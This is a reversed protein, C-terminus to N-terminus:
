VECLELEEVVEEQEVIEDEALKANIADVWAKTLGAWDRNYGCDSDCRPIEISFGHKAPLDGEWSTLGLTYTGLCYGSGAILGALSNPGCKQGLDAESGYLQGLVCDTCSSLHLKKVDIQKYWGPKKEDLLAVGRAVNEKFDQM